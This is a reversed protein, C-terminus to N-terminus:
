PRNRRALWIYGNILVLTIALNWLILFIIAWFM